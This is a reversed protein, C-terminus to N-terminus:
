LIVTILSNSMRTYGSQLIEYICNCQVYCSRLLVGSYICPDDATALCSKSARPDCRYTGSHLLYDLWVRRLINLAKTIRFVKCNSSFHPLERGFNPVCLGVHCFQGVILTPVYITTRLDQNIKWILFIVLCNSDVALHEYVNALVQLRQYDYFSTHM